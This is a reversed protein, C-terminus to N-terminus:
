VVLHFRSLPVYRYALRGLVIIPHFLKTQTSVGRAACVMEWRKLDRFFIGASNIGSPSHIADSATIFMISIRQSMPITMPYAM